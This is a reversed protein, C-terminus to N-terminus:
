VYGHNFILLLNEVRSSGDQVFLWYRKKKKKKKKKILSGCMLKCYNVNSVNSIHIVLIKSLNFPWIMEGLLAQLIKM